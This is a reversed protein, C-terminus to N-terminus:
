KSVTALSVKKWEIALTGGRVAITLGWLVVPARPPTQSPRRPPGYLVM